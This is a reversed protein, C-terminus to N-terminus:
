LDDDNVPHLSSSKQYDTVKKEFFNAEKRSDMIESLWPLPNTIPANLPELGVGELRRDAIYDIYTLFEDLSL